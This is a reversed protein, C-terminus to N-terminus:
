LMIFYCLGSCKKWLYFFLVNRIHDFHVKQVMKRTKVQLVVIKIMELLVPFIRYSIDKIGFVELKETITEHMKSYVMM